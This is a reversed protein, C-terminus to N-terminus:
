DGKESRPTTRQKDSPPTQQYNSVSIDGPQVREVGLLEMARDDLPRWGSLLLVRATSLPQTTTRGLKEHRLSVMPQNTPPNPDPM